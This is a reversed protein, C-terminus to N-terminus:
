QQYEMAETVVGVLTMTRPMFLFGAMPPNWAYCALATVQNANGGNSSALNSAMDDTATTLPFDQSCDIQIPTGSGDLRTKPNIVHVSSPDSDPNQSPTWGYVRVSCERFENNAGTADVAVEDYAAWNGGTDKTWYGSWCATIRVATREMGFIKSRGHTTMAPWRLGPPDCDYYSQPRVATAPQLNSTTPCQATASHISAFRAAERAANTIQQDYVVGMGLVIIGVLLVIFLPFVLALEVLAQGRRSDARASGLLAHRMVNFAGRRWPRLV